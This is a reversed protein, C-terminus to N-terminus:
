PAGVVGFPGGWGCGMARLSWTHTFPVDVGQFERSQEQWSM